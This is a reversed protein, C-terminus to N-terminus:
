VHVVLLVADLLGIGEPGHMVLLRRLGDNSLAIGDIGEQSYAGLLGIM